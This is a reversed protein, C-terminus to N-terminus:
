EIRQVIWFGRPTDVPGSVGEKALSFLVYEPAPELVGRPIRGANEMSGKDGKGVTAKFDQAADAALKKALELAEDRTRANAPAGQAGRYQILIVGFVVSKPADPGLPPPEEGSLLKRGVGSGGDTVVPGEIGVGTPDADPDEATTSADEPGADTDAADAGADASASPAESGGVKAIVFAISALFLAVFAIATWRQM